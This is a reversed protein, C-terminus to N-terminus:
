QIAQPPVNELPPIGKRRNSRIKRVIIIALGLSVIIVVVAIIVPLSKLIVQKVIVSPITKSTKDINVTQAGTRANIEPAYMLSVTAPPVSFIGTSVVRARYTFTHEGSTLQYLSLVAGNQTVDMGTVDNSSFYNNM